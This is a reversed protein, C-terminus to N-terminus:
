DDPATQSVHFVYASRCTKTTAKEGTEPDAHEVVAFVQVRVAKEGRKVHRGKAKWAKFTLVNERPEIEDPHIGRAAFSAVVVADNNSMGAQIRALAEEPTETATQM